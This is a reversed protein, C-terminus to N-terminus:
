EFWNEIELTIFNRYDRINRTVLILNNTQAVAAIQGDVYSPFQGIATLRSRELAFWEAAKQEYPLIPLNPQITEYLYTELQQKRRSVPIRHFGYLLEHWTISAIASEKGNEQLKRVVSSSPKLKFPESIINTDLLFRM